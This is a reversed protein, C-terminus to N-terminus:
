REESAGYPRGSRNVLTWHCMPALYGPGEPLVSTGEHRPRRRNRTPERTLRGLAPKCADQRSGARFFHEEHATVDSVELQWLTMFEPADSM